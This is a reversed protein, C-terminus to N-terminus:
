LSNTVPPTSPVGLFPSEKGEDLETSSKVCCDEGAKGRVPQNRQRYCNHFRDRPLQRRPLRRVKCADRRLKNVAPAFLAAQGVESQAALTPPPADEDVGGVEVGEQLREFDRRARRPIIALKTM